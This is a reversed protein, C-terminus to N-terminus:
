PQRKGRHNSATDNAPTGSKATSAATALAITSKMDNQLQKMQTALAIVQSSEAIEHKWTEDDEFNVYMQTITDRLYEITLHAEGGLMWKTRYSSVERKFSKGPTLLATDLYDQTYQQMSYQGPAKIKINIRASEMATDWETINYAFQEPVITKMKNIEKVTSVMVSPQMKKLILFLIMLGDNILEGNLPNWWEYKKRHVKLAKRGDEGIMALCQGAMISSLFRRHMLSKGLATLATGNPTLEGRATTPTSLDKNDDSTVTFTRNGFLMTANKQVHEETIVNWTGIIDKRDGFTFSNADTTSFVCTTAVRATKGIYGFQQANSEIKTAFDSADSANIKFIREPEFKAIAATMLASYEKTNTAHYSYYLNTTTLASM